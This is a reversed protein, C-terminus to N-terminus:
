QFRSSLDPSLDMWTHPIHDQDYSFLLSSSCAGGQGPPSLWVPCWYCFCFVLCVEVMPGAGNSVSGLLSCLRRSVFAVLGQFVTTFVEGYEECM